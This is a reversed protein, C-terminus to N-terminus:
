KQRRYLGDFITQWHLGDDKSVDWVQRVSGDAAPTWVVRNIVAEGSAAIGPGRLVMAGDQIGGELELLLGSNDVWTQHWLKRTADYINFSHGRSGQAGIWNEQLVCGGLIAEVRNHGAQKKGDPSTVNWNGLWFDFQRYEPAECAPPPTTQASASSILLLALAATTLTKM